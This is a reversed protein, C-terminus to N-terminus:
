NRMQEVVSKYWNFKSCLRLVCVFFLGYLDNKMYFFFFFRTLVLNKGKRQILVQLIYVFMETVDNIKNPNLNDQTNCMHTHSLTIALQIGTM